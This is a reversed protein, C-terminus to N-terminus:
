SLDAEYMGSRSKSPQVPSSQTSSFQVSCYSLEDLSGVACGGERRPVAQLERAGTPQPGAEGPHVMSLSRVGQCQVLGLQVSCCWLEVHLLM